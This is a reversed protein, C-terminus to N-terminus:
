RGASHRIIIRDLEVASGVNFTLVGHETMYGRNGVGLKLRDLEGQIRRKSARLRARLARINKDLERNSKARKAIVADAEDLTAVNGEWLRIEGRLTRVEQLLQDQDGQLAENVQKEKTLLEQLQLLRLKFDDLEHQLAEKDHVLTISTAYQTQIRSHSQDLTTQLRIREQETNSLIQQLHEITDSLYFSYVGAGAVIVILLIFVIRNLTTKSLAM